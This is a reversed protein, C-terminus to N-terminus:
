VIKKLFKIGKRVFFDRKKITNQSCKLKTEQHSRCKMHDNCNKYFIKRTKQAINSVENQIKTLADKKEKELRTKEDKQLHEVEEKIEKLKRDM